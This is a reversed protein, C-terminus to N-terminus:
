PVIVTPVPSLQALGLTVSGFVRAAVSQSGSRGVYIETAGAKRTEELILEVVQGYRIVGTAPVGAADAKALAPAMVIANARELEKKRRGHREALEEQTLFSYPSWELVHVLLLSAGDGKAQKIAFDLVGPDDPAGEFAVVYTESTM